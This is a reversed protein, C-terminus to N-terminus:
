WALIRRETAADPSLALLAETLADAAAHVEDDSLPELADLIFVASSTATTIRTRTCQRWNWRRCTVGDDDRWVVEGGDPHEVVHNGARPPTSPSPGTPVSWGRRGPTPM